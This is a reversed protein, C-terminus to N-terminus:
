SVGVLIKGDQQTKIALLEGGTGAVVREAEAIPYDEL